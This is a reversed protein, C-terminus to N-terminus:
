TMEKSHFSSHRQPRITNQPFVRRKVRPHTSVCARVRVASCHTGTELSPRRRRGRETPKLACKRIAGRMRVNRQGLTRLSFEPHSWRRFDPSSTALRLLLLLLKGLQPPSSEEPSTPRTYKLVKLHAVTEIGQVLSSGAIKVMTEHAATNSEWSEIRIISWPSPSPLAHELLILLQLYHGTYLVQIMLNQIFHSMTYVKSMAATRVVLIINKTFPSCHLHYVIM